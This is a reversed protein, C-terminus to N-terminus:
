CTSTHPLKLNWIHRALKELFQQQTSHTTPETTYDRHRKFALTQGQKQLNVVGIVDSAAPVKPLNPTVTSVLLRSVVVYLNESQHGM